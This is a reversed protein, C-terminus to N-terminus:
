DAWADIFTLYNRGPIPVEIRKTKDPTEMVANPYGHKPHEVIDRMWKKDDTGPDVEAGVPAERFHREIRAAARIGKGTENAAPERDLLIELFQWFTMELTNGGVHITVPAPVKM